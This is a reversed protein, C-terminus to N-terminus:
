EKNGFSEEYALAAAEEKSLKNPQVVGSVVSGAKETLAKRQKEREQEQKETKDAVEERLDRKIDKILRAASWSPNEKAKAYFREKNSDWDYDPHDKKALTIDLQAFALSLKDTLGKIGQSHEEKVAKLEKANLGQLYTVLEKRSLSEIDVDGDGDGDNKDPTTIHRGKSDIYKLYEPDLLANDAAQLRGQAEKLQTELSNITGKQTTITQALEGANGTDGTGGDGGDGGDDAVMLRHKLPTYNYHTHSRKFKYM